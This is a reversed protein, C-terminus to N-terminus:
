WTCLVQWSCATVTCYMVAAFLWHNLQIGADSVFLYWLRFILPLTLANCKIV